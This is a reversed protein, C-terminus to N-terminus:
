AAAEQQEQRRHTNYLPEYVEGTVWLRHLLVCLKRAVAVVARKKANKAGRSAVKEGHRRLDSDKGFPGLVYHASGVLLKRLMEDGEKSIRKQPDSDGSRDTAPVLGLYAGVARSKKFRHPDEVTLVFTLATLPGIGEVQRLLKTEPYHDESITELKRDYDKIRETLSGIQELVPGLAPLLAEPIHEPAKNHFSRAPCKPLRAGFSKVAGRVHNVLQTRAGVLAQRARVIALHAQSEEGRHKLPYLLKPDVRALRALNEADVEDTKRKNVYILRLKRANAVLVEHGCEELVRSAWPSHTGAEIAIRMPPQESSFRRRFAEPSTRLRGEEIVEGSQSDILCLYSYKDGLDLGATTMPQQESPDMTPRDEKGKPTLARRVNASGLTSRVQPTPRRMEDEYFATIAFNLM